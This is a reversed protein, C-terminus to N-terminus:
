GSGQKIRAELGEELGGKVEEMYTGQDAIVRMAGGGVGKLFAELKGGLIANGNEVQSIHSQSVDALHALDPQTLGLAKRWTALPSEM